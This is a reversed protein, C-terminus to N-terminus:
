HSRFHQNDRGGVWTLAGHHHLSLCPDNDPATPFLLAGILILFLAAADEWIRVKGMIIQVLETKSLSVMVQCKGAKLTHPNLM